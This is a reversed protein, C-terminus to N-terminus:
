IIHKLNYKEDANNFLFLFLNLFFYETSVKQIFSLSGVIHLIHFGFYFSLSFSFDYRFTHTFSFKFKALVKETSEMWQKLRSAKESDCLMGANDNTTRRKDM